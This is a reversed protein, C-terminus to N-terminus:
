IRTRQSMGSQHWRRPTAADPRDAHDSRTRRRMEADGRGRRLRREIPGGDELLRIAGILGCNRSLAEIRRVATNAAICEAAKGVAVGDVHCTVDM